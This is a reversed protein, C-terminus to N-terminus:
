NAYIMADTFQVMMPESLPKDSLRCWTLTQILTSMNDIPGKPVSKPSIQISICCNENLHVMGKSPGKQSLTKVCQPRSLISAIECVVNERANEEIFIATNQNFKWQFINALNLQCCDLMPEYLPKAGILRCAMVSVIIILKRVCIHTVRSWHTLQSSHNYSLM